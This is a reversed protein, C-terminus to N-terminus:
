NYHGKDGVNQDKVLESFFNVMSELMNLEEKMEKVAPHEEGLDERVQLYVNTKDQLFITLARVGALFSKRDVLFNKKERKNSSM